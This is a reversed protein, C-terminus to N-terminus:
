IFVYDCDDDEASNASNTILDDSQVDDEVAPESAQRVADDSIPMAVTRIHEDSTEVIINSEYLFSPAKERVTYLPSLDLELKAAETRKTEECFVDFDRKSRFYFGIAMSPDLRDVDVATFQTTHIQDIFERSPFKGAKTINPQFPTSTSSNDRLSSGGKRRKTPESRSLSITQHIAKDNLITSSPSSAATSLQDNYFHPRPPNNYVSHPDLGLMQIRAKDSSLVEGTIPMSLHHNCQNLTHSNLDYDFIETADYRSGDTREPQVGGASSNKDRSYGVFYLAHNPSGGIFGVSNPHRLAATLDEIYEANVHSIGLRLPILVLLSSSWLSPPNSEQSSSDPPVHM